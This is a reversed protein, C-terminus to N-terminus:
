PQSLLSSFFVKSVSRLWLSFPDLGTVSLSSRMKEVDFSINLGVCSACMEEFCALSWVIYVVRKAKEEGEKGEFVATRVDM